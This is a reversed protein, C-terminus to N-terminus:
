QTNLTVRLMRKTDTRRSRPFARVQVRLTTTPPLRQPIDNQNEKKTPSIQRILAFPLGNATPQIWPSFILDNLQMPAWPLSEQAGSPKAARQRCSRTIRSTAQHEIQQLDARDNEM